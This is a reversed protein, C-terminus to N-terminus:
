RHAQSGSRRLFYLEGTHLCGQFWGKRGSVLQKHPSSPLQPLLEAPMLDGLM